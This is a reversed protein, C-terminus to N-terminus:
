KAQMDHSLTKCFYGYEEFYSSSFSPSFSVPPLGMNNEELFHVDLKTKKRNNSIPRCQWTDASNADM